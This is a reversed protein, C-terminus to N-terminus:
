TGHGVACFDLRCEDCLQEALDGCLADACCCGGLTGCIVEYCVAIGEERAGVHAAFAAGPVVASSGTRTNVANPRATCRMQSSDQTLRLPLVKLVRVLSGLVTEPEKTIPPCRLLLIRLSVQCGPQTQLTLIIELIQMLPPLVQLHCQEPVSRIWHIFIYLNYM